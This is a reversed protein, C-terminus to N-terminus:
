NPLRGEKERAEFTHEKLCRNIITTAEIPEGMTWYTMGEYDFYTIPRKYFRGGYGFERIHKVFQVFLVEDVNKRVIYEHPWEPMTKAYNWHCQAIFEILERPLDRKTTM